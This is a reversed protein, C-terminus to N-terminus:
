RQIRSEKGECPKPKITEKDVNSDTDNRTTNGAPENMARRLITIKGSRGKVKVCFDDGVIIEKYKYKYKKYDDDGEDANVLCLGKLPPSFIM